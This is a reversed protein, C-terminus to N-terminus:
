CVCVFKNEDTEKRRKIKKKKENRANTKQRIGVGQAVEVVLPCHRSEVEGNSIPRSEDNTM